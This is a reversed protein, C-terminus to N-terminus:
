MCAYVCPKLSSNTIYLSPSISHTHLFVVSLVVRCPLVPSSELSFYSSDYGFNPSIPSSSSLPRLSYWISRQLVCDIDKIRICIHFYLPKYSLWDHWREQIQKGKERTRRTMLDIDILFYCKDHERVYQVRGNMASLLKRSLNLGLGEPSTWQNGGFMEQILDPPIGQGIHTMRCACSFFIQIFM